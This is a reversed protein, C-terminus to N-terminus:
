PSVRKVRVARGLSTSKPSQFQSLDWGPYRQFRDGSVWPSLLRGPRLGPARGVATAAMSPRILEHRRRELRDLRSNGQRHLRHPPLPRQRRLLLPLSRQPLVGSRRSISRM